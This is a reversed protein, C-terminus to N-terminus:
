NLYSNSSNTSAIGSLCKAYFTRKSKATIKSEEYSSTQFRNTQILRNNIIDVIEEIPHLAHAVALLNNNNQVNEVSADLHGIMQEIYNHFEQDSITHQQAEVAILNNDSDLSLFISFYISIALIPLSLKFSM